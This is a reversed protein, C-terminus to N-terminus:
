EVAEKLMNVGLVVQTQFPIVMNHPEEVEEGQEMFRVVVVGLLEATLGLLAVGVVAMNEMVLEPLINQAKGVV